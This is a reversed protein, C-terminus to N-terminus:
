AAVRYYHKLLGGLESQCEIRGTPFPITAPEEGSAAAPLTRNNRGQHPRFENYFRVYIKIIYRLHDVGFCVFHDLLELRITQVFREAFANLNPKRPGVRVIEIGDCELTERFKVTFKTDMDLILCKPAVKEEAFVMSMNRAQQVVWAEDPNTTM